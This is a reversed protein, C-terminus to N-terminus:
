APQAAQGTVLARIATAIQTITGVRDVPGDLARAHEPMGPNGPSARDIVMTTGGARQIGSLGRAGDDLSRSLVVGIARERGFRGVSEFLLDVTRNRHAREPDPTVAGFSQELLTLHAAPRGIYCRGPRLKEGEEAVLVPMAAKRGLVARLNSPQHFPRHLVVMVVAPLDEGLSQLLEGIERLGDSGSAGIAVFWPREAAPSIEFV